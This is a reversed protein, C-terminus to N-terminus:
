NSTLIKNQVIWLSKHFLLSSTSWRKRFNDYILYDLYGDWNTHRQFKVILVHHLCSRHAHQHHNHNQIPIYCYDKKKKHYCKLSSMIVHYYILIYSFNRKSNFFIQILAYKQIQCTVDCNRPSKKWIKINCHACPSPYRNYKKSPNSYWIWIISCDDTYITRKPAVPSLIEWDWAQPM